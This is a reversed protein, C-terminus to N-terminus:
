VMDRTRDITERKTRLKMIAITYLVYVVVVLWFPFAPIHIAAFPFSAFFDVVGLMYALLGFAPVALLTGLLPHILGGLAAVFGFLMAGPVAILVLLNVPVAVLSLDGMLYLIFPLVFIQTSITAAAIERLGFHTPIRSLYPEILPALIILGLTALFSLQFSPDFVLIFPNHLIMVFAAVFLARTIDYGRGVRRAFIVLLAMLSARVVTAGAGTLLAFLIIGLSGFLSALAPSLSSFVALIAEAVITINYGSLVVIHMVGTVRFKELLKEGLSEKAGVILGGAFSAEPEPLVRGMSALLTHKIKFLASIIVNGKGEDIKEIDPRFMQYAIGSKKLFAPYDFIRGSEDAEFREPFTIEGSVLLEDGYTYEPYKDVYALIREQKPCVSVDDLIELTLRTSSERVDPEDAVYVRASIEKESEAFRTECRELTNYRWVGLAASAIVIALAAGIERKGKEGYIYSILAVAGSLIIFLLVVENGWLFFSRLGVGAILGIMIANLICSPHM